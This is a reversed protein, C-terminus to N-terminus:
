GSNIFKYFKLFVFSISKVSVDDKVGEACGNTGKVLSKVFKLAILSNLGNVGILSACNPFETEKVGKLGEM